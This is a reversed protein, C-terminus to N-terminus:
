VVCVGDNGDDEEYLKPNALNLLNFISAHLVDKENHERWGREPSVASCIYTKKM